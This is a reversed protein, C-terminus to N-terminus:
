LLLLPEVFVLENIKVFNAILQCLRGLDVPFLGDVGVVDSFAHLHVLLREVHLVSSGGHSLTRRTALELVELRGIPLSGLIERALELADIPAVLATRL